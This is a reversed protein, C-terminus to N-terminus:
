YDENMVMGGYPVYIRTNSASDGFNLMDRIITANTRNKNTVKVSFYDGVSMKYKRAESNKPLTNKPFLIAMIQNTYFGEYDVNFKNQFTAPNAPDTYVPNYRKHYHELQVDYSNGTLLLENIFDNYAQPTIYGKDRAADVFNTVAKFALMYSVDDQREYTESAPWLYLVLAALIAVYVKGFYNMM